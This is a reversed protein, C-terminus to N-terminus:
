RTLASSCRPCVPGPPGDSLGGCADCVRELWCGANGGGARDDERSDAQARVEGQGVRLM